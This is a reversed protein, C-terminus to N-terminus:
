ATMHACDVACNNRYSSSGMLALLPPVSQEIHRDHAFPYTWAPPLKAIISIPLNPTSVLLYHQLYRAASCHNTLAAMVLFQCFVHPKLALFCSAVDGEFIPTLVFRFSTHHDVQVYLDVPPKIKTSDPHNRPGPRSNFGFTCYYAFNALRLFLWNIVKQISGSIHFAVKSSILLLFHRAKEIWGGVM